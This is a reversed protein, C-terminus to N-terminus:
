VSADSAAPGSCGGPRHVGPSGHAPLMGSREQPLLWAHQHMGDRWDDCHRHLRLDVITWAGHRAERPIRVLMGRTTLKRREVAVDLSAL